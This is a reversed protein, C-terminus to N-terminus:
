AGIMGTVPGGDRELVAIMCTGDAFEDVRYEARSGGDEIIESLAKEADRRNKFRISGITRSPM